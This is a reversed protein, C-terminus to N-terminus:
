WARASNWLAQSLCYAGLQSASFVSCIFQAAPSFSRCRDGQLTRGACWIDRLPKGTRAACGLTRSQPHASVRGLFSRALSNAKLAGWALITGRPPCGGAGRRSVAQLGPQPRSRDSLRPAGGPRMARAEDRMFRLTGQLWDAHEARAAEVQLVPPLLRVLQRAVPHGFRVAGCVLSM